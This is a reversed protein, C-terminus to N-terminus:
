FIIVGSIPHFSFQNQTMTKLNSSKLLYFEMRFISPARRICVQVFTHNILAARKTYTVCLALSMKLYAWLYGDYIKHLMKANLTNIRRVFFMRILNM